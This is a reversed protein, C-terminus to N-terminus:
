MFKFSVWMHPDITVLAITPNSKPIVILKKPSLKALVYQKLNPILNFLQAMTLIYKNDLLQGIKHFIIITSM